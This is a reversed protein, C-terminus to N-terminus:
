KILSNENQISKSQNIKKFIFLNPIENKSLLTYNDELNFFIHKSIDKKNSWYLCKLTKPYVLQPNINNYDVIDNYNFLVIYDSKDEDKCLEYMKKYDFLHALITDPGGMVSANKPIYNHIVKIINDYNSHVTYQSLFVSFQKQSFGCVLILIVVTRINNYSIKKTPIFNKTFKYFYTRIIYFHYKFKKDSIIFLFTIFLIVQIEIDYHYARGTQELYNTLLNLAFPASVLLLYRPYLIHIFSFPGLIYFLYMMKRETFITNIIVSPNTFITTLVEKLSGGLHSYRGSVPSSFYRSEAGLFYPYVWHMIWYFLSSAVIFLSISLIYKKKDKKQYADIFIFIAMTIVILSASEKLCLFIIIFISFYIYKKENYFYFVWPLVGTCLVILHFDWKIVNVIPIFLLYGFTLLTQYIKKFHLSKALKYIGLGGIMFISLQIMMLVIGPNYNSCLPSFLILLPEFHDSLLYLDQKVSSWLYNQCANGYIALDIHTSFSFYHKIILVYIYFIFLIFFLIFFYLNNKQNKSYFSFFSNIKTYAITKQFTIYKFFYFFILIFCLDRPFTYVWRKAIPAWLLTPIINLLSLTEITYYICIIFFLTNLFSILSFSKM